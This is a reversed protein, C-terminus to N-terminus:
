ILADAIRIFLSSELFSRFRVKNSEIGFQFLRIGNSKLFEMNHEPYPEPCLCRCGYTSAFEPIYFTLVYISFRSFVPFSLVRILLISVFFYVYMISRLGLTQLFSFNPSDPFGSRFIGNDVMSFNLPPIYLGDGDRDCDESAEMVLLSSISRHHDITDVEITRCMQESQHKLNQEEFKM